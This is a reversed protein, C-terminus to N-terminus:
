VLFKSWWAREGFMRKNLNLKKKEIKFIRRFTCARTARTRLAFLTYMKHKTKLDVTVVFCTGFVNGGVNKKKKLSVNIQGRRVIDIGIDNWSSSAESFSFPMGAVSPTSSQLTYVLQLMNKQVSAPHAPCM